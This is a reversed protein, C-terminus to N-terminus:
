QARRISVRTLCITTLPVISICLFRLSGVPLAKPFGAEAFALGTEFAGFLYAMSWAARIFKEVSLSREILLCGAFITLSVAVDLGTVFAVQLVEPLPFPFAVTWNM